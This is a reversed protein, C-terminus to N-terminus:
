KGKRLMKFDEADLKGNKNVDLNKQKGVLKGGKAMKTNWRKDGVNIFSWVWGKGGKEMKKLESNITNKDEGDELMKKIKNAESKFEHKSIQVWRPKEDVDLDKGFVEVFLSSWDKVFKVKNLVGDKLKEEKKKSYKVFYPNLLQLYKEADKELDGTLPFKIEKSALQQDENKYVEIHLDESGDWFPTASIDINDLESIWIFPNGEEASGPPTFQFNNVIKGDYKKLIYDSLEERYDEDIKGGKAMKGDKEDDDDDDDDDDGRGREEFEADDRRAHTSDLDKKAMKGHEMALREDEKDDYGQTKGGKALKKDELVSDVILYAGVAVLILPLM